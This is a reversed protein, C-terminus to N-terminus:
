ALTDKLYTTTQLYLQSALERGKHQAQSQPPQGLALKNVDDAAQEISENIVFVYYPQKLAAKLERCAGQLRRRVESQDMAGRQQLRRQWEEFSPPLMFIALTTPKVQIINDVGAIEIDTIAIKHEDHAKQLERLSIGSVQQEHIVAAELFAGAQLEELVEAESRFWYERGNQEPVGDNIRPQRTTDSIIYHYRGTELLTRITTNRGALSPGVLLVLRIDELLLTATVAPQYTQLIEKFVPLNKLENM